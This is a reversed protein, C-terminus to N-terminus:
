SAQTTIASLCPGQLGQPHRVATHYSEKGWSVSRCPQAAAPSTPFLLSAIDTWGCSMPRCLEFTLELGSVALADVPKRGEPLHVLEECDHIAALHQCGVGTGLHPSM